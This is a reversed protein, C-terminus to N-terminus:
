TELWDAIFRNLWRGLPEDHRGADEQQQSAPDAGDEVLMHGAESIWRAMISTTVEPHFQLGIRKPGYRFAQNAFDKGRALPEVGDALDFGERHWHYVHSISDLFGRGQETEVIPRYGIECLADPHGSVEAGLARALIQGGLCIGLFPKETKVWDGVWEIERGIYDLTGDDNASEPGGFVVAALFEGNPRPLPDGNGPCSWHLEYGLAGLRASLRDDRHNGSPHDILVIKGSM